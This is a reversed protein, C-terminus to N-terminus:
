LRIMVIYMSDNKACFMNILKHKNFSIFEVVFVGVDNKLSKKALTMPDQELMITNNKKLLLVNSFMKFSKVAELM